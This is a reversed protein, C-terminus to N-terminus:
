SVQVANTDCLPATVWRRPNMTQFHQTRIEIHNNIIPKAPIKLREAYINPYQWVIAWPFKIETRKLKYKVTFGRASRNIYHNRIETLPCTVSVLTKTIWRLWVASLKFCDMATDKWKDELEFNACETMLRRVAIQYPLHWEISCNYRSLCSPLCETRGKNRPSVGLTIKWIELMRKFLKGYESSGSGIFVNIPWFFNV